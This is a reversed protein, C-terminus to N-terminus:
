ALFANPSLSSEASNKIRQPVTGSAGSAGVVVVIADSTVM